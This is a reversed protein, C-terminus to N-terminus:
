LLAKKTAEIPYNLAKLDIEALLDACKFVKVLMSVDITNFSDMNVHVSNIISTLLAPDVQVSGSNMFRQSLAYTINV